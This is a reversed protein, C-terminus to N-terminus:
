DGSKGYSSRLILLDALSVQGDCNLDASSNWKASAPRSRYANRLAIFDPLSVQNDGNVDGGTLSVALGTVNGGTTDVTVSKRLWKSGKIGLIYTGSPVNTLAFSGNFAGLTATQTITSGGTSGTPTLTFTIPQALRGAAVSQLSITGSIGSTSLIVTAAAENAPASEGESSVATVKYYYTVGGTLGSDTYNTATLNARLPTANEGGPSTGRYLNYNGGGPSLSWTLTVSGNRGTASLTTPGGIGNTIADAYRIADTSSMDDLLWIFGGTVGDEAAWGAMESQVTAFSNVNWDGPQVKLGGFLTNWYGPDNGFGGDYCQLYVADVRGGLQLKVSRWYTENDYPCLTVHMGLTSILKGFSVASSVDFDVEDDYDIADIGLTNKLVQFNKYLISTPGTGQSAILHRINVFSLAGAGGTCVEIRHVSSPPTKLAALRAGWGPDGVYVGNQVLLHNGNYNLDGNAAVDVVFLIVTNYRSRLVASDSANLTFLHERGFIASTAASARKPATATLVLLAFLVAFAAAITIKRLPYRM